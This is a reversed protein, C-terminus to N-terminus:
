AHSHLCKDKPKKLKRLRYACIQPETLNMGSRGRSITLPPYSVSIRWKSKACAVTRDRRLIRLYRDIYVGLKGKHGEELVEGEQQHPLVLAVM